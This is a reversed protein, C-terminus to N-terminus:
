FTREIGIIGYQFRQDEVFVTFGGFRMNIGDYMKLVGTISARFNNDDKYSETGLLLEFILNGSGTASRIGLAPTIGGYGNRGVSAVVSGISIDGIMTSASVELVGGNTADMAVKSGEVSTCGSVLLMVMLAALMFRM